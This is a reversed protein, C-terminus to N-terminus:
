KKQTMKRNYRSLFSRLQDSTISKDIMFKQRNVIDFIERPKYGNSSLGLAVSHWAHKAGEPFPTKNYESVILNEHLQKFELELKEFDSQRIAFNRYQILKNIFENVKTQTGNLKINASLLKFVLSSSKCEFYSSLSKDEKIMKLVNDFNYNTHKYAKDINEATMTIDPQNLFCEKLQDTKKGHLIALKSLLLLDHENFYEDNIVKKFTNELAFKNRVEKVYSEYEAVTKDPYCRKFHTEAETIAKEFGKIYSHKSKYQHPKSIKQGQLPSEDDCEFEEYPDDNNANNLIM